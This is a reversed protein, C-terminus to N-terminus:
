VGEDAQNVMTKVMSFWVEYDCPKELHIAGLDKGRGVLEEEESSVTLLICHIDADYHKIHEIIDIGTLESTFGLHIDIICVRPTHEDFLALATEGDYARLAVFGRRDLHRAMADVIMPEDDLLM